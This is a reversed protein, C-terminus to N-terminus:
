SNGSGRIARNMRRIRARSLGKPVDRFTRERAGNRADRSTSGHLRVTLRGSCRREAVSADGVYSPAFRPNRTPPSQRPVFADTIGSASPAHGAVHDFNGALLSGLKARHAKGNLLVACDLHICLIDAGGDGLDPALVLVFK